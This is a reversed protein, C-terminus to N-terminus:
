QGIEYATKQKCFFCRGCRRGCVRRGGRGGQRERTREREKERGAGWRSGGEEGVRREESRLRWDALAGEVDGLGGKAEGRSAILGADDPALTLGADAVKRAKAYDH